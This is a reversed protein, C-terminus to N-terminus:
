NETRTATRFTQEDIKGQSELYVLDEKDKAPVFEREYSMVTEEGILNSGENILSETSEKQQLLEDEIKENSSLLEMQEDLHVLYKVSEYKNICVELFMVEEDFNNFCLKNVQPKWECNSVYKELLNELLLMERGSEKFVMYKHKVDEENHRVLYSEAESLVIGYSPNDEVIGAFVNLKDAKFGCYDITKNSSEIM